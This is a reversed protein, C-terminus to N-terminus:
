LKVMFISEPLEIIIKEKILIFFLLMLLDVNLIETRSIVNLSMFLRNLM